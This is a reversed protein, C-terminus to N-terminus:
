ATFRRFTIPSRGAVNDIEVVAGSHPAHIMKGDGIYIGCHTPPQGFFVIDGPQPPGSIPKGSMQYGAATNDGIKIGAQNLVYYVLGSCDFANPGNAGWIYPKGLHQRAANVIDAGTGDGIVYPI